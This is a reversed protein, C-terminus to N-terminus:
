LKALYKDNNILFTLRIIDGHSVRLELDEGMEKM